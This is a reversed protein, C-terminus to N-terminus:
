KKPYHSKKCYIRYFLVFINISFSKTAFIWIIQTCFESFIDEEITTPTNLICGLVQCNIVSEENTILDPNTMKEAIVKITSINNPLKIESVNSSSFLEIPQIEPCTHVMRNHWALQVKCRRCRIIQEYQVPDLLDLNESVRPYFEKIDEYLNVLKERFNPTWKMDNMM